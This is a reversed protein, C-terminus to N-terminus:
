SREVSAKGDQMLEDRAEAFVDQLTEGVYMFLERGREVGIWGAKIGAKAMPKVQLRAVPSVLAGLMPRLVPALWKIGIGIAIGAALEYKAM